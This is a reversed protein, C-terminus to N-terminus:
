PPATDPLFLAQLDNLFDLGRATPRIRQLDVQLLGGSQARELPQQLVGPPLGTRETFRQLEFGEPLR